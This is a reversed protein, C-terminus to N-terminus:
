NLPTSKRDRPDIVVVLMELRHQVVRRRLRQLRQSELIRMRELELTLRLEHLREAARQPLLYRRVAGLDLGEGHQVALEKLAIECELPRAAVELGRTGAVE